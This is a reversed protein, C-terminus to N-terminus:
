EPYVLCIIATALPLLPWHCHADLLLGLVLLEVAPGVAAVATVECITHELLISLWLQDCEIVGYKVSPITM